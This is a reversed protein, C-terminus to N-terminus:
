RKQGLLTGRCEAARCCCLWRRKERPTHREDLVIRYDYGLEEGPRIARIAEIFIRGGEEVAECNPDCSHNIWRAANGGQGADIVIDADLEFLFTHTPAGDVDAYLECALSYPIRRGRYEIIRAGNPISRAAFVGRGHIKSRRVVCRPGSGQLRHRHRGTGAREHGNVKSPM